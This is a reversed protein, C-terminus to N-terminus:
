TRTFTAVVEIHSSWLFQDIPTVPGMRFGASTLVIADRAFSDANCSVYAIRRIKSQALERVQAMAGVRPPDLVVLDFPALEPATLPRKFLDRPEITVPKLGSAGRVAAALAALAAKDSEVAHVRAARALPLAFTGCGSFLDAVSKASKATEIVKAKLLTEGKATPQLFGEAPPPVRVGGLEVVPAEHEFVLETNATLRALRLRGAWRAGTAITAPTLAKKWRIAVDTGNITETVFLEAKEGEVLLADMMDRLGSVSAFLTPTLVLCEHMDVIDHSAAAHFGILTSGNQKAAKFAARRRTGAGVEVIDAIDANGLGNRALADVIFDRKRARYAEDPVDQYLCGGCTGFHRCLAQATM